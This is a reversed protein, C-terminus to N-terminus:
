EKLNYIVKPFQLFPGQLHLNALAKPDKAEKQVRRIRTDPSAQKQNNERSKQSIWVGSLKEKEKETPESEAPTLGLSFTPPTMDELSKRKTTKKKKIDQTAQYELEECESETLDYEKNWFEDQKDKENENGDNVKQKDAEKDKMQENLDDVKAHVEEGDNKTESGAEETGKGIDDQKEENEVQKEKEKEAQQEKWNQTQKEKENETEDVEISFAVERDDGTLKEFEHENNLDDQDDKEDDIQERGVEETGKSIDNRKEKDEEDDNKKNNDADSKSESYEDMSSDYLNFEAHKFLNKYQDYFNSIGQDEGFKTMGERLTEILESREQSIKTFKEIIKEYFERGGNELTGMTSGFLTLFNIKFMFDAKTTGSMQSAIARPTPKGLHNYQALIDNVKQRTAKISGKQLRLEMSPSHFNEIVHYALKSPLEVIPFQIYREFGMQKLCRKREKSLGIMADFLPKPSSRTNCTPYKVQKSPKKHCGKVKNLEDEDESNSYNEEGKEAKNMTKKKSTSPEKRKICKERRQTKVMEEEVESETEIGIDDDHKEEESEEEASEEMNVKEELKRKNNVKPEKEGSKKQNSDKDQKEKKKQELKRKKEIQEEIKRKKAEKNMESLSEDVIKGVQNKNSRTATNLFPMTQINNFFQNVDDNEESDEENDAHESEQEEVLNAEEDASKAEEDEVDEKMNNVDDETEEEEEKDKAAEEEYTEDTGFAYDAAQCLSHSLRM